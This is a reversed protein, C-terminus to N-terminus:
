RQMSRPDPGVQDISRVGPGVGTLVAPRHAAQHAFAEPRM